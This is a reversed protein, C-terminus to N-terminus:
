GSMVHRDVWRELEPILLLAFVGGVMLVHVFVNWAATGGTEGGRLAALAYPALALLGLVASLVAASEWWSARSFLAWTAVCFGALTVLSLIRATLWLPGSTTVSRSAFAPTLWLWTTGALFLSIGGINRITFM